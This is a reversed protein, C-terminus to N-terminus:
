KGSTTRDGVPRAFVDSTCPTSIADNPATTCTADTAAEATLEKERRERAVALKKEIEAGLEPTVDKMAGSELAIRLREWGLMSSAATVAGRHDDQLLFEVVENAFFRQLCIVREVPDGYTRYWKRLAAKRAIYKRREPTQFLMRKMVSREQMVKATEATFLWPKENKPAETGEM